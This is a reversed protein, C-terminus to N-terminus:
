KRQQLEIIEKKNGCIVKIRNLGWNGSTVMHENTFEFYEIGGNAKKDNKVEVIPTLQIIRSINQTSDENIRESIHVEKINPKWHGDYKIRGKIKYAVLSKSNFLDLNSEVINVNFNDIVLGEQHSWWSINYTIPIETKPKDPKNSLVGKRGFNSLYLYTGGLIFVIILIIGGM